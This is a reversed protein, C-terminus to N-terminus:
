GVKEMQSLIKHMKKRARFIYVKVQSETIKTIVAIEKYSYGEYDRLLIVEKQIPSLHKLANDLSDKLEFNHHQNRAIVEPIKEVMDVRKNKRIGDIFTHYATTFLYSKAKAFDVDKHKIWLKEFSQQVIDRADAEQRVNKIAFRFLRDSWEHVCINYEKNTM